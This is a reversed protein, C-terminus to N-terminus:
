DGYGMAKLASAISFQRSQEDNGKPNNNERNVAAKVKNNLDLDHNADTKIQHNKRIASVEELLSELAKNKRLGGSPKDPIYSKSPGTPPTTVLSMPAINQRREIEPLLTEAKKISALIASAKNSIVLTKESLFELDDMILAARDIRKQLGESIEGSVRKLDAISRQAKLITDDFSRFLHSLERSSDRILRIRRNLVFGYTIATVLLFIIIFNLALTLEAM